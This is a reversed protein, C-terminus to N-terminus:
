NLEFKPPNGGKVDIFSYIVRFVPLDFALFSLCNALFVLCVAILYVEVSLDVFLL